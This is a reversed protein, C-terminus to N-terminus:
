MYKIAKIVSRDYTRQGNWKQILTRSINRLHTWLTLAVPGMYNETILFLSCSGSIDSKIQCQTLVLTREDTRTWYYEWRQKGTLM